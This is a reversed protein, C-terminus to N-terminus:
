SELEMDRMQRLHSATDKDNSASSALRAGMQQLTEVALPSTKSERPDVNVSFERPGEPLLFAYHGPDETGAFFRAESDLATTQGDPKRVSRGKAEAPLPIRD